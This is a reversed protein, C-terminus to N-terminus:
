STKGRLPQAAQPATSQGNHPANGIEECEM